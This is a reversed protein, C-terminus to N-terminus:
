LYVFKFGRMHQVFQPEFGLEQYAAIREECDGAEAKLDDPGGGTDRHFYSFSPHLTM